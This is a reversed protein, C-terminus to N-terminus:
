RQQSEPDHLAAAAERRAIQCILWDEFRISPADALPAVNEFEQEARQMADQADKARGLKQLTMALYFDMTAEASIVLLKESRKELSKLAAKFDDARYEALGKGITFWSDYGPAGGSNAAIDDLTALQKIDGGLKPLLLCTKAVRDAVLPDHTSGFRALMGKCHEQYAPGDSLYALLCGQFYWAWLDSPNLQIAQAFQTRAKQFDGQRAAEKAQKIAEDSAAIAAEQAATQAADDIARLRLQIYSKDNSTSVSALAEHLLDAAKTSNGLRTQCDALALISVLDGARRTKELLEVAWEDVGRFAYWQGLQALAASNNADHSLAERAHEILVTQSVYQRARRWDWFRLTNDDASATVAATIQPTVDMANIRGQHGEMARVQNGTSLDYMRLVRDWGALLLYAGDSSLALDGLRGTTFTSRRIAGTQLDFVTFREPSAIALSREDGSIALNLAPDPIPDVVRLTAGTAVDWVRATKDIGCSVIKRGSQSFAVKGVGGHHGSFTRILKGSAAEWLKLLGDSGGSVLTKGDPSFAVCYSFIGKAPTEHATWNARPARAHLDWLTLRGDATMLALTRGDPSFSMEGENLGGSDYTELRQGTALNWLSILQGSGRTAALRGDRSLALERVDGTAITPVESNPRVSWLQFYKDYCTSLLMRSDPSFALDLIGAGNGHLVAITGGTKLDILTIAAGVGGCALTRNDPSIAATFTGAATHVTRLLAGSQLDWVRVDTDGSASGTIATHGDGSIALGGIQSGHLFTRVQKGTEVEWLRATGDVTAALVMRGDPTFLAAGGGFREDSPGRFERIKRGTQADRVEFALDIRGVVVKSGDASGAVWYAPSALPQTWVAKGTLLDIKWLATPGGCIVSTEDPSWAAGMGQADEPLQITRLMAGTALDVLHINRGLDKTLAKRGDKSFKVTVIRGDQALPYTMLPPPSSAYHGFMSFEVPLTPQNLREFADLTQKYRADAESWHGAMDLADAESLMGRSLALEANRQERRAEQKQSEKEDRAQRASVLADALGHRARNARIFGISTAALGLILAAAVAGVAIFMGRKRRAFKRLQYAASPPGAAVPEDKLHRRLDAGLGSATEYRRTRDKELCKMVIWDLDGSVQKRLQAPDVSRQRAKITLEEGMTSLRLSPRQPEVERIIRQIEAYAAVRLSKPDFPTGGTLLEYLLVGLSYIDSRTDVDLGSMEAQEPSTYAPTGILQRYETFVTKETLRQSTAKAIGFDIVKPVPIGDHLTVLVNSPKIDRHIVGKQHAHQVANCVAILLEVRGGTSLNNRDCYETIPVGKVLEMVFYPRGADTAGADFVKAINPHDMLALAQREAEFRAIVQRTDMGLKIVKLAVRRKVPEEQEAMFVSGFGGEGILQLLKYRGIRAGPTESISDVTIGQSTAPELFSGAGEHAALLAEVRARLAPDDHCAGEVYAAQQDRERGLAATFISEVKAPNVSM